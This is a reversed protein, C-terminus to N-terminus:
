GLLRAYEDRVARYDECAAAELGARDAIALSGRHYRILSRAQLVEAAVSVTARRVGLMAALLEHTLPLEDAAVRDQAMLLWRALRPAVDHLRNCAANHLTQALLAVAFRLLVDRVAAREALHCRLAAAPMRLAGDPVHCMAEALSREAGLVVPLGVLGDTGVVSAEVARGDGMVVALSCLGGLPFYVHRVPEGQEFLVQRARLEVPETDALLRARDAQPLL